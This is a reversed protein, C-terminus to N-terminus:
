NLERLRERVESRWRRAIMDRDTEDDFQAWYDFHGMRRVRAYLRYRAYRDRNFLAPDLNRTTCYAERLRERLGEARGTAGFPIDILAEEALAFDLLGDATPGYGVDIVAHIIPDAGDDPALVLNAPRYDGVMVAPHAQGQRAISAGSLAGYIEDELEAFRPDTDTTFGEGRLGALADDLLEDFWTQWSEYGPEAILAGNGCQLHGFGDVIETDHIAALHHGSEAILRAQADRSLHRVDTVKRGDCYEMVFAAIGSPGDGPEITAHMSPLPVRTDTELRSLLTAETLLEEDSSFTAMKVVAAAGERRDVRYVANLGEEFPRIGTVTWGLTSEVIDAVASTPPPDRWEDTGM